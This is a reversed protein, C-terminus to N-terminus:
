DVEYLSKVLESEDIHDFSKGYISLRTLQRYRLSGGGVRLSMEFRETRAKELMAPSQVIGFSESGAEASVEFVTASDESRLKGGALLCVGRPISLSHMVLGTEPEYMWHGFQEHFIEANKAKRVVHKYSVAALWQQEYNEARGAATFVLEDHHATTKEGGKHAPKPALDTGHRGVWTGILQALPGYDIGAITSM